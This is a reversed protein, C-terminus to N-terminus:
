LAPFYHRLTDAVPGDPHRELYAACQREITTLTAAPLETQWRTDLTLGGSQLRMRNGLIHHEQAKFDGGFPHAALGTFRHIDGLTRDPDTCVDEYFVRLTQVEGGVRASDAERRLWLRVALEPTFGSNKRSSWAVGRPDRVLHLHYLGFGALGRLHRLRYPDHSNDVFVEAAHHDLVCTMLVENARLQRELAHRAPPFSRVLSDRWGELRSSQILPLSALLYRNLRENHGLEFETGFWRYDFPLGAAAFAAAIKRYLPCDPLREGCSCRFDEDPGYRWGSTHGISAMRPHLNLLFSLLTSGSFSFSTLYLVKRRPSTM